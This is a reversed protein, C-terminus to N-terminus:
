LIRSSMYHVMSSVLYITYFAIKLICYFLILRYFFICVSTWLNLWIHKQINVITNDIHLENMEPFLVSMLLLALAMITILIVYGTLFIFRKTFNYSITDKLRDTASANVPNVIETKYFKEFSFILATIFLGILISFTSSMFEFFIEPISVGLNVVIAVTALFLDINILAIELKSSKSKDLSTRIYEKSKKRIKAIHRTTDALM